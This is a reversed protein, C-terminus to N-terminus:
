APDDPFFDSRGPPARAPRPEAVDTPLNLHRLIKQVVDKADITAIVSM